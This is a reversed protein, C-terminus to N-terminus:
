IQNLLQSYDKANGDRKPGHFGFSQGLPVNLGPFIQEQSFQYALYPPAIKLDFQQEIISRFYRRQTFLLDEHTPVTEFKSTAELLRKSRLSFGGNGVRADYSEVWQNQQSWPAGIYDYNLFEDKWLHPNVVFGDTQIVLCFDTLVYKHLEKIIFISYEHTSNIKPIQIFTFNDPFNEPKKDSLLMVKFFNINKSSYKLAKTALEYNKCDACILTVQPLHLAFSSSAIQSPGANAKLLNETLAKEDKLPYLFRGRPQRNILNSYIYEGWVDQYSTTKWLNDNYVAEPSTSNWARLHDEHAIYFDDNCITGNSYNYMTLAFDVDWQWQGVVYNKFRHKHENWWNSNCSWADFGAIEMKIPVMNGDISTLPQVDVRSFSYTEYSQKLILKILKDSILIDNNLYLFYECSQKSLADFCEKALPLRKKSQPILERSSKTLLPLQTFEPHANQEDAFTINYLEIETCYKRKLKLLAQICHQHRELQEYINIGIAIKSM